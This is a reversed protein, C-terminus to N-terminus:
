SGNTIYTSSVVSGWQLSLIIGLDQDYKTECEHHQGGQTNGSFVSVGLDQLIEVLLVLIFHLHKQERKMNQQGQLDLGL